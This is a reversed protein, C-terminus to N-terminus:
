HNVNCQEPQYHLNLMTWIRTLCDQTLCKYSHTVLDISLVVLCLIIGKTPDQTLTTHYSMHFFNILLMRIIQTIGSNSERMHIGHHRDMSRMTMRQYIPQWKFSAKESTQYSLTLRSYPLCLNNSFCHLQSIIAYFM